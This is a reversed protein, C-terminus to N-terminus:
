IRSCTFEGYIDDLVNNRAANCIILTNTARTVGVYLDETSFHQGECVYICTPLELGKFSKVTSLKVGGFNLDFGNKYQNISMYKINKSSLKSEMRDIALKDNFLIATDKLQSGSLKQLYQVINNEDFSRMYYIKSSTKDGALLVDEGGYSGFLYKKALSVGKEQITNNARFVETLRTWRGRFGSNKPFKPVKSATNEDEAEYDNNDYLKQFKDAFVCIKGQPKLLDVLNLIANPRLDQMEDVFIYDYLPRKQHPQFRYGDGGRTYELDRFDDRDASSIYYWMYHHYNDIEANSRSGLHKKFLELLSKNFCCILIKKGEIALREACLLMISTKGSGANGLIRKRKTSDDSLIDKVVDRQHRSLADMTVM